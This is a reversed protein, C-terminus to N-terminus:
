YLKNYIYKKFCWKELEFVIKTLYKHSFSLIQEALLYRINLQKIIKMYKNRFPISLKSLNISIAYDEM